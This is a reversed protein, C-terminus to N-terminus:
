HVLSASNAVTVYQIHKHTTLKILYLGLRYIASPPQTMFAQRKIKWMLPGRHPKTLDSYCCFMRKFDSFHLALAPPNTNFPRELPIGLHTYLNM